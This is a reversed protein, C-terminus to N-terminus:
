EYSAVGSSIWLPRRGLHRQAIQDFPQSTDWNVVLIGARQLRKIMLERELHVIRAALKTEHLNPLFSEEFSVPNPSVIIVHYGRARLKMLMEVDDVTLPSILVVQSHAPFLRTPINDLDEFIQSSGPQAQALVRLIREKQNKGYGPFTWELSRGYLLLSVRNGQVLFTDALTAAALVSYEFLSHDGAFLNTRIRGDLVIGVDAVREQEFENAFLKSPYRASIRWNIWHTPDGERYERVALFDIGTGGTRSPVIGSFVRTHRPRIVVNKLRLVPPVVFLKGQIPFSKIKRVLGFPDRAVVNISNLNYAGRKGKITYTWTITKGAPLFFLQSPAGNNVNLNEPIDDYIKVEELTLGSNTVSTEVTVPADPSARISSMKRQFQLELSQPAILMSFSLYVMFILSLTLVQSDRTILGAILLLYIILSLLYLRQM